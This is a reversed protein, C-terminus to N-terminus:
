VQAKQRLWGKRKDRLVEDESPFLDYQPSLLIRGFPTVSIPWPRRERKGRVAILKKLHADTM